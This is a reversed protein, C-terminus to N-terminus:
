VAASRDSKSKREACRSLHASKRCRKLGVLLGEAIKVLVPFLELVHRSRAESCSLKFM